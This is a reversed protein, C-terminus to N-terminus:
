ITMNRNRSNYKEKRKKISEAYIKDQQEYHEQILEPNAKLEKAFKVAQDFDRYMIPQDYNLSAGDWVIVMPKWFNFLNFRKKQRFYIKYYNRSISPEVKVEIEKNYDM